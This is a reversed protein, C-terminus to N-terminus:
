PKELQHELYSQHLPLGRGSPDTQKESSRLVSAGNVKAFPSHQPLLSAFTKLPKEKKKKGEGSRAKRKKRGRRRKRAKPKLFPDKSKGEM